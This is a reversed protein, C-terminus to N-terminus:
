WPLPAVRPLKEDRMAAHYVFTALIVTNAMLDEPVLRDYVDMNSHYRRGDMRDQMFYYGPLGIEDYAEHVMGTSFLHRMGLNHLPKMWETFISRIMENGMINLGKIRASGNDVNFYASLKHYDPKYEKKALDAFNNRVHSRNGFLGMEHGGWLGIRLTRRPKIGLAKFIRVVEMSVITGAGDDTAGTGVPESQLHGGVLVLEDALDTGPIEAVVNYDNPDDRPFDVKIEVELEVPIGKELIRIVRNYHEAAMIIERIPPPADTEWMRNTMAYGGVATDVTGFDNKGDTRAVMYAGAAFLMDIKQEQSLGANRHRRERVVLPGIPTKAMEDLEAETYPRTMPEFHPTIIQKPQMFVIKDRIANRYTDLDSETNIDDLNIHIAQAQMKGNTGASWAAPYAIIPMYQPTMMHISTYLNEWGVGFAFPELRVNSLGYEELKEKVWQAAANYGSSKSNRPGYVDTIWSANEMVESHEFAEDMIKDVVDWHVPEQAIVTTTVVVTIFFAVIYRYFNSM